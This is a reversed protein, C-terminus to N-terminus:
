YMNEFKLFITYQCPLVGLVHNEHSQTKLYLLPSGWKALVLHSAAKKSSHSESMRLTCCPSAQQVWMIHLETLLAPGARGLDEGLLGIARVAVGETRGCGGGWAIVVWLGFSGLRLHFALCKLINVGCSLFSCHLNSLPNSVCLSRFSVTKKLKTTMQDTITLKWVISKKKLARLHVNCPTHILITHFQTGSIYWFPRIEFNM